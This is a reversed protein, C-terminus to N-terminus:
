LLKKVKSGESLQQKILEVAGVLIANIAIPDVDFVKALIWSPLLFLVGIRVIKLVAVLLDNLARKVKKDM